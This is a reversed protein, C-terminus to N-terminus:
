DTVSQLSNSKSSSNKEVKGLPNRPRVDTIHLEGLLKYRALSERAFARQSKLDPTEGEELVAVAGIDGLSLCM